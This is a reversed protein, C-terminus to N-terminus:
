NRIHIVNKKITCRQQLNKLNEINIRQPLFYINHLKHLDERYQVHVELFYGINRDENYSKMFDKNFQSTEEVWQFGGLPLKSSIVWRCLNNVDWHQLYLSEKSYDKM